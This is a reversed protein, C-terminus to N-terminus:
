WRGHRSKNLAALLVGTVLMGALMAGGMLLYSATDRRKFSRIARRELSQLTKAGQRLGRRAERAAKAAQDRVTGVTTDTWEGAQEQLRDM